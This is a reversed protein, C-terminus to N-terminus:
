DAPLAPVSHGRHRRGFLIVAAAIPIAGILMPARIGAIAALVGGGLAGLAESGGAVTGCLSTVRGLMRDPVQRQRMTVSTMNFLEWAASSDVLGAGTRQIRRQAAQLEPAQDLSLGPGALIVLRGPVAADVLGGPGPLCGARAPQAGRYLRGRDRTVEAEVEHAEHHHLVQERALLHECEQCVEGIREPREGRLQVLVCCGGAAGAAERAKGEVVPQGDV